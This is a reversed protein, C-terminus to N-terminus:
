LLSMKISQAKISLIGTNKNAQKCAKLEMEVTENPLLYSERQCIVIVVLLLTM